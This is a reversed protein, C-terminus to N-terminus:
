NGLANVSRFLSCVGDFTKFDNMMKNGREM